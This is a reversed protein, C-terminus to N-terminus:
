VTYNGFIQLSLPIIFLVFSLVSFKSLTDGDFCALFVDKWLLDYYLKILCFILLINITQWCIRISNQSQPPGNGEYNGANTNFEHETLLIQWYLRM